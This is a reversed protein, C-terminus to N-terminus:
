NRELSFKVAAASLCLIGLFIIKIINEPVTNQTNQINLNGATEKIMYVTKGDDIRWKKDDVKSVAANNSLSVYNYEFANRLEDKVKGEQLIYKYEINLNFDIGMTSVLSDVSLTMPLEKSLGYLDSDCPIKVISGSLVLLILVGFMVLQSAQDKNKAFVSFLLGMSLSFFSAALLVVLILISNEIGFFTISILYISISQILAFLFNANLKGIIIGARKMGLTERSLPGYPARETVIRLSTMQASIFIVVISLLSAFTYKYYPYQSNESPLIYGLLLVVLIPQILLLLVHGKSEVIQRYELRTAKIIDKM